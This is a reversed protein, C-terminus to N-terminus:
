SKRAKAMDADTLIKKRTAEEDDASGRARKRDASPTPPEPTTESKRPRTPRRLSSPAVPVKKVRSLPVPADNVPGTPPAPQSQTGYAFDRVLVGANTTDKSNGNSFGIVSFGNHADLDAKSLISDELVIGSDDEPTNGVPAHRNGEVAPVPLAEARGSYRTKQIKDNAEVDEAIQRGRPSRPVKPPGRPDSRSPTHQEKDVRRANHHIYETAGPWYFATNADKPPGDSHREFSIPLKLPNEAATSVGTTPDTRILHNYTESDEPLYFSENANDNPARVYEPDTLAALYAAAEKATQKALADM